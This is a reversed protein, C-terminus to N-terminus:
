DDEDVGNACVLYGVFGILLVNAIILPIMSADM